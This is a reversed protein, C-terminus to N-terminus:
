AGVRKSPGAVRHTVEVGVFYRAIDAVLMDLAREQTQATAGGIHPTLTIRPHQALKPWEGDPECVDLAAGAVQGSEIGTLLAREDILTQRATNIIFVGSKMRSILEKGILHRNENTAKAHLTVVDSERLLTDLDTLRQDDTLFPDYSLVRMGYFEAQAAVKQGIAGFGIVGITHGRPERAMWQGGIFTSDLLTEGQRAEAELWSAAPAATRMLQHVFTMTLDAVADANKAPTNIVTVGRREAAALDVNLPNGRACAVLRISPHADLLEATVPAAHVLLAEENTLEAIIQSVDGQHEAINAHNGRVTPDVVLYRVPFRQGLASLSPQMLSLPLYSDGVALVSVSM